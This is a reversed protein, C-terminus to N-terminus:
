RTSRRKLDGWTTALKGQENVALSGGPLLTYGNGSSDRYLPAGTGEDFRWLAITRGDPDFRRRPNINEQEPYRFGRSVRVEDIFGHMSEYFHGWQQLTKDTIVTAGGILIPANMRGMTTKWHSRPMLRRDFFPIWHTEVENTVIQFAIHVWRELPFDHPHYEFGVSQRVGLGRHISHKWIGFQALIRGEPRRKENWDGLDEGYCSYIYSGPKAIFVWGGEHPNDEKPFDTLYIWAEVTIGEGDTSDFVGPYDAYAYGVPQLELVDAPINEAIVQHSPILFVMLAILSLPFTASKAMTSLGNHRSKVKRM